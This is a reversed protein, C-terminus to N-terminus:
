IPAAFFDDTRDTFLVKPNNAAPYGAERYKGPIRCLITILEANGALGQAMTEAVTQGIAGYGILGVGLPARNKRNSAHQTNTNM